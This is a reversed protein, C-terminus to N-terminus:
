SVDSPDLRYITSTSRGSQSSSNADGDSGSSDSASASSYDSEKVATGHKQVWETVESSVTSGGGPGGGM